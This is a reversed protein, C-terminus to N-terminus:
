RLYAIVTLCDMNAIRVTNRSNSLIGAAAAGARMSVLRDGIRGRRAALKDQFGGPEVADGAGIAYAPLRGAAKVARDDLPAAQDDFGLDNDFGQEIGQHLM